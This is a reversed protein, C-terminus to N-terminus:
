KKSRESKTSFFSLSLDCYAKCTISCEYSLFVAYHERVFVSGKECLFEREIEGLVYCM